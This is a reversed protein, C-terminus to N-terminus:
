YVGALYRKDLVGRAYVASSQLPVNVLVGLLRESLSKRVSLWAGVFMSGKFAFFMGDPYSPSYIALLGGVISKAVGLSTDEEM